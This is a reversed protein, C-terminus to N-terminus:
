NFAVSVADTTNSTQNEDRFWAQFNWTDGAVISGVSPLGTTGLDHSFEGCSGSKLVPPLLRVLGNGLICLPGDSGPPTVSNQGRGMLFYGIKGQPLEVARLGLDDDGAVTSSGVLLRAASGTSNPVAPTCYRIGAPVKLTLAHVGRDGAADEGGVIVTDGEIDLDFGFGDCAAVRTQQVWASGDHDYVYISNSGYIVMRDEAIGVLFGFLGDGEPVPPLIEESGGPDIVYAVGNGFHFRDDDPAGAVVIGDRNVAVSWGRHQGARLSDGSAGTQSWVGASRTFVFAAGYETVGRFPAGVALTDGSLDLAFGFFDGDSGVSLEAEEMWSSGNWHFVYVSEPAPGKRSAVAITDGDIAVQSGLRDGPMLNAPVLEGQETWVGGIREFVYATGTDDDTGPAGVVARDGSVDCAGGFSDFAEGDEALLKVEETWTRGNRVFVHVAGAFPGQEDDRHDGLVVSDSSIAACFASPSSIPMTGQQAAVLNEQAAVYGELSMFSASSIAVPLVARM